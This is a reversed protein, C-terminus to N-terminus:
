ALDGGDIVIDAGNIYPANDTCLWMVLKAVEEVQGIRGVPVNAQVTEAKRQQDGGVFRDVQPTDIFGPSISNARIGQRPHALAASKTLGIIAHKSAVYAPIIPFGIHGATSANNIIVGSGQKLMQPIEYLMSLFVGRANTNMVVNWNDLTQEVFPVVTGEYGANNFAIDLRGYTAVTTDILNKVQDPVMVDTRVYLAEGGAQRIEQEVEQGLNTRRGCFVVRAGERAFAIATGRGIGSTAGTILVVKDEFRRQTISSAPTPVPASEQAKGSNPNLTSAALGALVTGGGIIIKRRKSRQM